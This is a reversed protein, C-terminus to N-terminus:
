SRWASPFDVRAAYISQDAPGVNEDPTLVGFSMRTDTWAALAGEDASLLGLRGGFEVLGPTFYPIFYHAGIRSDFSVRNLRVRSAFTRASDISSALVVDNLVNAPDARRDYYVLDLRGNPAVALRPLYQHRGNGVPDDNVRVVPEWSRGQDASARLFVDWDGNRRDHWAVYLQDGPGVALSAPTMTLVLLVREPPVVSSDVVTGASFNQGADASEAVVLSWTGEYAPGELGYYDREDGGLDYYVVQVTHDRGVVVAPATVLRRELDSVRVPDSFSRGGDDSFSAVVPNPPSPFGPGAPDSRAQVWVLHIRGSEGQEDDVAMSVGFVHPGLVRVPSSFRRGQDTSSTLFVGMPTNGTTHLGVFLYYLRGGRDYSIEPAYCGEAGPPLVPVPDAAVWTEGGDGSMELNCGFLPADIRNASAVVRENTPDVALFPSNHGLRTQLDVPTVPVDRRVSVGSEASVPLAIAGVLLLAVVLPM